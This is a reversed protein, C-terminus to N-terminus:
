TPDGWDVCRYIAKEPQRKGEEQLKYVRSMIAAADQVCADETPYIVTSTASYCEGSLPSCVLFVLTIM